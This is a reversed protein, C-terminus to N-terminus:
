VFQRRSFSPAAAIPNEAALVGAWPNDQSGDGLAFTKLMPVALTETVPLTDTIENTLTVVRTISVTVVPPQVSRFEIGRDPFTVDTELSYVGVDLGFLDITARVEDELLADLVPLPGFLIVRVEEPDITAKLGEGLGQLEPIINYFSTTLFPEIEIDVFIAQVEDLTIGSPLALTVQQTDPGTLGTIDIPETRVRSLSNVLAPPGKILV